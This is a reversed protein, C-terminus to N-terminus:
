PVDASCTVKRCLVFYYIACCLGSDVPYFQTHKLCYSPIIKPLVAVNIRQSRTKNTIVAREFAIFTVTVQFYILDSVFLALSHRYSRRNLLRLFYVIIAKLITGKQTSVYSCIISSINLAIGCTM